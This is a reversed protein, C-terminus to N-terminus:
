RVWVGTRVSIAEHTYSGGDLGGYYSQDDYIVEMYSSVDDFRYGAQVSPWSSRWAFSEALWGHDRSPGLALNAAPQGAGPVYVVARDGATCGTLMLIM